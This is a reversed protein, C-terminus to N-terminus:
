DDHLLFCTDELIIPRKGHIYPLTRLTNYEIFEVAEEYSINAEATLEKAMMDLEYIACGDFSKGIIANDFAPSDFVVTDYDLADRISKNIMTGGIIM